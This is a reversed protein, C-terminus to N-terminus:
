GPVPKNVNVSKQFNSSGAMMAKLKMDAREASGAARREKPPVASVRADPVLELHKAGSWSGEFHATEVAKFRQMIVDLGRELEGRLLCDACRAITVLERVNRLNIDTSPLLITNLYCTVLPRWPDVSRDSTEEDCLSLYEKMKKLTEKTLEGPREEAIKMIRNDGGKDMFRLSDSGSSTSSSRRSRRKRKKGREKQEGSTNAVAAVARDVLTQSGAPKSVQQRAAAREEMQLAEQLERRGM